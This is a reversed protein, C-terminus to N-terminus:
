HAQGVRQKERLLLSWEQLGTSLAQIWADAEGTLRPDVGRLRRLEPIASSFGLRALGQLIASRVGVDTEDRYRTALVQRAREMQAAPVGGLATVAAARVRADDSDVLAHIRQASEASIPATSINGLIRATVAPDSSAVAAAVAVDSAPGHAGAYVYQNDEILNTAAEARVEPSADRVLRQYMDGTHEEASTRRLARTAAARVAPDADGLARKAVLRLTEVGEGRDTRAALAAALHEVMVPATEREFAERLAAEPLTVASEKLLERLYRQYAPSGSQLGRRISDMLGEVSCAQARPEPARSVSADPAGAALCPSSSLWLSVWVPLHRRNM